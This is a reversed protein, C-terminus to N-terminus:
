SGVGVSPNGLTQSGPFLPVVRQTSYGSVPTAGCDVVDVGDPRVYRRGDWGAVEEDWNFGVPHGAPMQLRGRTRMATYEARSMVRGQWPNYFLFDAGHATEARAHAFRLRQAPAHLSFDTAAIVDLLGYLEEVNQRNGLVTVLDLSRMLNMLDPPVYWLYLSDYVESLVFAAARCAYDTYAVVWYGSDKRRLSSPAHSVVVPLEVLTGEPM